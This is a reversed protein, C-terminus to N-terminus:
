RAIVITKSGHREYFDHTKDLYKKKLFRADPKFSHGAFYKGVQYNVADGLVAAITMLLVVLFVDIGGLAALSGAAFLLSDGPLIPTVVLGTECFVILFLLAYIWPGWDKVIDGLYRDLHLIVDVAKRLLEM